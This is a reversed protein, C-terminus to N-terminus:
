IAVGIKVSTKFEDATCFWIQNWVDRNPNENVLLTKERESLVEHNYVTSYPDGDQNVFQGLRSKQKIEEINM